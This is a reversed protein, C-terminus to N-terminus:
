IDHQQDNQVIFTTALQSKLFEEMAVVGFGACRSGHDFKELTKLFM